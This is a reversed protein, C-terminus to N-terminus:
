AILQKNKVSSPKTVEIDTFTEQNTKNVKSYIFWKTKVAGHSIEKTLSSYYSDSQLSDYNNEKIKIEIDLDLKDKLKALTTFNLLKTGRYLQTLYSASTGILEALAKRKIKKQTTIISIESLIKSALVKAEIDYDVEHNDFLSDFASDLNQINKESSKM